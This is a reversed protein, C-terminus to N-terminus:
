GNIREQDYSHSLRLAEDKDELEGYIQEYKEGWISQVIIKIEEETLGYLKSADLITIPHM